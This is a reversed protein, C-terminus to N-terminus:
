GASKVIVAFDDAKLSAGGILGGDINPMSMLEACNQANMSGGYQIRLKDATVKDFMKAAVGRIYAIAADADEKTATMGTGIAWVPEYAIVVNDLDAATLGKLGERLQKENVSDTEGKQRQELTEGICVIPILGSDLAKKARLFVTKDTEGFLARRESHGVIVYAAGAEKLMEASIEGTFAGNDAWAVNQAGLQLSHDTTLPCHDSPLSSNNDSSQLAPAQERRIGPSHVNSYIDSGDLVDKVAHLATFPVCLVVECPPGGVLRKIEQALVSAQAATKNMKWNGAILKKRM